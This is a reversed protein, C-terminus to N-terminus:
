IYFVANGQITTTTFLTIVTDVIAWLGGAVFYGLVMGICFRRGVRYAGYGGIKVAFFKVLWATFVSAWFFYVMHSSCILLGVPHLPWWFFSRQAWVLLTMLGAGGGAWLMRVFSPGQHQTITYQAWRWATYQPFTSFFWPDMNLGGHRYCVRVTTAAAAVYAIILGLLMAWFLGNRRRRTLYMGHAAGSMPSNRMDFHWGYHMGMVTVQNAGLNESGFISAVFMNPYMPPSIAPLGCQAVVRAMAYYVALTVLILIVGYTLHLGVIRLWGVAVVLGLVIVFFALRYSSPEGADYGEEGTGLACRWARKLHDRSLWLSSVVFVFTAGGAVHNMEGGYIAGQTLTLNYAELFSRVVWSALAVFWVTFAVRNPILFVLGVVVLDLYIPLRWPETGVWQRVRLFIPEDAVYHSVASLSAVLFTLGMGIWFAKRRLVTEGGPDAAACLEAPVQAIPFSLHEHDVWQKRMLTMLAMMCAFFAMLFVGWLALPKVWPGWPIPEGSPLGVWFKHIAFTGGDPDLPSLWRPLHEWLVVNWQNSPNAFYYPATITPIFYAILGSSVISGGVLMMAGVVMLEEARLAASKWLRGLGFNFIVLLGLLFFSAGGTHYDAYMRSSQLYITWYPGAVGTVLCMVCGLALARASM